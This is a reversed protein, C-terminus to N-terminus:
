GERRRHLKELEEVTRPWDSKLLRSLARDAHVVGGTQCRPCYNCENEAYRIRQVPTGCVPCPKGYRGHVAMEPHFATVKSPFRGAWQARYREVWSSLVQRASEYLRRSEEPSLGGTLKFPSLRAAHLIEDSFANGIGSFLRPDTLARKVTHSEAVLRARFEELSAELVELGGADLSGLAAAGQLLHLSARHKPGAETLELVGSDFLWVALLGKRPPRAKWAAAGGTPAAPAAPSAARRGLGAPEPSGRRGAAERWQLRGAIMLHLVAFLEGEFALVIRKGLRSVDLVRRGELEEPRPSATRLLFPSLISVRRLPQGPLRDRLAQVYSVIDPLEPV